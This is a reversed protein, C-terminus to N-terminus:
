FRMGGFFIVGASGAALTEYASASYGFDYYGRLRLYPPAEARLWAAPLMRDLTVQAGLQLNAYDSAYPDSGDAYRTQQHAGYAQADFSLWDISYSAYATASAYIETEVESPQDFRSLTGEISAGLALPGLQIRESLEAEYSIGGAAYREADGSALTLRFSLDTSSAEGNWGLGGELAYYPGLPASLSNSFAPPLGGLGDDGSEETAVGQRLGIRATSPLLQSLFSSEKSAGGGAPGLPHGVSGPQPFGYGSLAGPLPVAGPALWPFESSPDYRGYGGGYAGGYPAGYPGGYYYGTSSPGDYHHGSQDFDFSLTLGGEARASVVPDPEVGYIEDSRSFSAQLGIVGFDYSASAIWDQSSQGSESYDGYRYTGDSRSWDLDVSWAEGHLRANGSATDTSRTNSIKLPVWM